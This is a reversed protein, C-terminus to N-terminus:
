LNVRHSAHHALWASQDEHELRKLLWFKSIACRVAITHQQSGSTLVGHTIYMGALCHASSTRHGSQTSVFSVEPKNTILSSTSLELEAHSVM